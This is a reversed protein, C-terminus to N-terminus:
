SLTARGLIAEARLSAPLLLDRVVALYKGREQEIQYTPTGPQSPAEARLREPLLEEPTLDKGALAARLCERRLPSDFDGRSGTHAYAPMELPTGELIVSADGRTAPRSALLESFPISWSADGSELPVASLETTVRGALAAVAEASTSAGAEWMAAHFRAEVRPAL